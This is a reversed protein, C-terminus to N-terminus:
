KGAPDKKETEGPKKNPKIKINHEKLFKDIKEKKEKELKGSEIDALEASVQDHYLTKPFEKLLLRYYRAAKDYRTMEFQSRGYYYYTEEKEQDNLYSLYHDLLYEFRGSSALYSRAKYYFVGVDFEHEALRQWCAKIKEESLKSYPSLPYKQRLKEFAEIAQHSFSQDRDPTSIQSYYCMGVMYQAYPADENRPFYVLFSEYDALADGAGRELDFFEADAIGLKAKSFEKSNAANDIILQFYQRAKAYKGDSLYTLGKQYVQAVPVEKGGNWLKSDVKKRCGGMVLLLALSVLLLRRM